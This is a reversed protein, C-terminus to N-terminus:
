SAIVHRAGRGGGKTRYTGYSEYQTSAKGDQKPNRERQNPDPEDALAIPDSM